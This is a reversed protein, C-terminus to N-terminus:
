GTRECATVKIESGPYQAQLDKLRVVVPQQPDRVVLLTQAIERNTLGQPALEAM